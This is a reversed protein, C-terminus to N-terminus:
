SQVKLSGDACSSAVHNVETPSLAVGTVLQQHGQLLVSAKSPPKIPAKGKPPTKEM